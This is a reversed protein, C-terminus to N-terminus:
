SSLRQWEDGMFEPETTTDIVAVKGHGPSLVLNPGAPAVAEPDRFFYLTFLTFLIWLAILFPAIAKIVTGLFAAFAGGVLVVALAILSTLILKLAAKRAKGSHKM